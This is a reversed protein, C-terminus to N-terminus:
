WCPRSGTSWRPRWPWAAAAPLQAGADAPGPRTRGLGAPDAGPTGRRFRHQPHVAPTAARGEVVRNLATTGVAVAWLAAPLLMIGITAAVGPRVTSVILLVVSLDRVLWRWVPEIGAKELLVATAAFRNALAFEGATAILAAVVFPIVWGLVGALVMIGYGLLTVGAVAVGQQSRIRSFLSVSGTQEGTNAREIGAAAVKLPALLM